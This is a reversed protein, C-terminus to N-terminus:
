LAASITARARKTRGLATHARECIPPTKACFGLQSPAFVSNRIPPGPSISALLLRRCLRAAARRFRGYKAWVIGAIRLVAQPNM